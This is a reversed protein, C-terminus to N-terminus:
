YLIFHIPVVLTFTAKNDRDQTSKGTSHKFIFEYMNECVFLSVVTQLNLVLPIKMQYIINVQLLFCFGMIHFNNVNITSHVAKSM